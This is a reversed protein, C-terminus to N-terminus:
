RWSGDDWCEQDACYQEYDDDERAQIVGLNFKKQKATLGKSQTAALRIATQQEATYWDDHILLSSVRNYLKGCNTLNTASKLCKILDDYEETNIRKFNLIEEKTRLAGSTTEYLAM